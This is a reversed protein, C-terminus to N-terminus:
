QYRILWERLFPNNFHYTKGEKRLTDRKIHAELAKVVASTSTHNIKTLFDRSTPSEGGHYAIGILVRKQLATCAEIISQSAGIQHDFVRELGSEVSSADLISDIDSTEWIASCLRQMDSPNRHTITEIIEWIEKMVTRGGKKFKRTLFSRFREPPDIPGVELHDASNYFPSDPHQFIEHMAHRVPGAYIIRVHKLHQISKRLQGLFDYRDRQDLELLAQFEDFFILFPPSGKKPKTDLRVLIKEISLQDIRNSSDIKIRQGLLTFDINLSSLFDIAKSFSRQKKEYNLWAEIFWTSAEAPTKVAMLDVRFSNNKFQTARVHEIASTKGVRRPGSLYMPQGSILRGAISDELSDRDCYHRTDVVRGFIFPNMPM